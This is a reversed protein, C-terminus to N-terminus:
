RPIQQFKTIGGAIVTLVLAAVHVVGFRGVDLEGFLRRVFLLLVVSVGWAVALHEPAAHLVGGVVATTLALGASLLLTLWRARGKALATAPFTYIGGLPFAVIPLLFVWTM